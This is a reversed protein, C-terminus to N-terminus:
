KTGITIMLPPATIFSLDNAANKEWDAYFLDLEEQSILNAQVLNQHNENTQELWTWLPSHVGGTKYIPIVEVERFGATKMLFPIKGGIDADGGGAQLLKWVHAYIHDFADSQPFMSIQRFNFYEISVFKGGPVLMQYVEGIIKEAQGIFLIVWRCFVKDLEKLQGKFRSLDQRIDALITHIQEINQRRIFDIFTKSNDLCFISGKEGIMDLLDYSLYGPGCGLDLIRDGAQIEAQNIALQSEAYWVQHQFQLRKIEDDDKDRLVYEQEM